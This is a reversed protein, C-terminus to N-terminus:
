KGLLYYTTGNIIVMRLYLNDYSTGNWYAFSSTRMTGCSITGAEITKGQLKTVIGDVDLRDVSLTGATIKSANLNPIRAVKLTGATIQDANLSQTSINETTIAKAVLENIAATVANMSNTSVHDSELSKVRASVADLNVVTAFKTILEQAEVLGKLDIKAAKITVTEATQNIESIISGKSVKLNINDVNLKIAAALEVEQSIARKVEAEIAGANLTIQNSLGKEMDAMELRTEEVTRTLKNTKGKLQIIQERVGNVEQTQYHKGEADYTDRLAQIGKLTRQLIYTYIIEQETHVKIGDGVSLCPSGKAEVHAPRYWVKCIVSYLNAAITELEAASKGYVLFNDQVIYCNDGTGYICGIDDEEQRIQLKNIKATTFDEYTATKYNSKSVREVNLTDAPYLNDAPYLTDSPYLAEKMEKLFIYQFRGDRGIHGFCGNIECIATIVTKGSLQVPAVTRTVVMDDNVLAVEEQEIGFHALFSDRFQKLTVTSNEEPLITNFWAAVDATIIDHMADYAVIDRYKRNATPKDSSVKYQGFPFSVDTNGGLTETVDLWKGMLPTFINSVKFKISSAECTGFRLVEESCIGESLEFNESHIEENTITGGDFEISLQKDVSDQLFLDAYEFEFM